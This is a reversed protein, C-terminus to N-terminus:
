KYLKTGSHIIFNGNLQNISYIPADYQFVLRYGMRKRVKGVEDRTMNVANPSRFYEVNSPAKSADIGEFVDVEYIQKQARATQGYRM